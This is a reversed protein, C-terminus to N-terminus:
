KRKVQALFEDWSKITPFMRQRWVAFWNEVPIQEEALQEILNSTRTIEKSIGLYRQCKATKEPIEENESESEWEDFFAEEGSDHDQELSQSDETHMTQAKEKRFEEIEKLKLLAIDGSYANSSILTQSM